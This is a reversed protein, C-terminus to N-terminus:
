QNAPVKCSKFTPRTGKVDGELLLTLLNNGTSVGWAEGRAGETGWSVLRHGPWKQVSTHRTNRCCGHETCGAQGYPLLGTVKVVSGPQLQCGLTGPPPKSDLRCDLTMELVIISGLHGDSYVPSFQWVALAKPVLITHTHPYTHTVNLFLAM